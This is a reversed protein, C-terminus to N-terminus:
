TEKDSQGIVVDVDVSQAIAALSDLTHIFSQLEGGDLQALYHGVVRRRVLLVENLKHVGADTLAVIVVRRDNKDRTRSVYGHNELRDLMVTIASPAVEMKDALKSVTCPSEHQQIFHLLFLQGSTLGWQFRTVIDPGLAKALVFMSREFRETLDDLSREM